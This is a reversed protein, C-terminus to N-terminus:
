GSCKEDTPLCEKVVLANEEAALIAVPSEVAFSSHFNDDSLKLKPLKLNTSGEEEQLRLISSAMSSNSSKRQLVKRTAMVSTSSVGSLAEEERSASSSKNPSISLTMARFRLSNTFYPRRTGEVNAQNSWMNAGCRSNVDTAASVDAVWMPQRVKM